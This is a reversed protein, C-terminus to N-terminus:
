IVGTCMLYKRMRKMGTRLAYPDIKLSASVVKM